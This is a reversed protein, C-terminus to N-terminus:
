RSDNSGYAHDSTDGEESINDNTFIMGEKEDMAAYESEWSGLSNKDEDSNAPVYKSDDEDNHHHQLDNILNDFDEKGEQEDLIINGPIWEFISRKGMLPQNDEKGLEKFRAIIDEISCWTLM